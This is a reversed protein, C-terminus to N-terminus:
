REVDLAEPRLLLSYYNVHSVVIYRKPFWSLKILDVTGSGTENMSSRVLPINGEEIIRLMHNEAISHPPCNCNGLVHSYEFEEPPFDVSLVLLQAFANRTAEKGSKRTM